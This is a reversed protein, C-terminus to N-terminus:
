VGRARLNYRNSMSQDMDGNSISEKVAGIIIKRIQNGSSDSSQETQVDENTYNQIIIYVASGAQPAGFASIGLNGDSGRKLPMVAEPGAEGMLGPAFGSGSAFRFYTPADIIRNTFFGGAAFAAAKGYQNYIGGKANKESDETDASTAGDVYGSILASSAAAAVFGLGLAWQGNAILQLGAQLFMMPLQKLIQQAMAALAREMSKAADEGEGLARGFEEFGNLTSSVCLETFQAQLGGLIVAAESSFTDLNMLGQTLSDELTARWDIIAAKAEEFQTKATNNKHDEEVTSRMVAFRARIAAIEEESNGAALIRQAELENIYKLSEQFEYELDDIRTASLDRMLREEEAQLKKGMQTRKADYYANVQDITEKNAARVYNKYADALKKGRELEIGAFPDGAQEAKFQGWVDAWAEKWNRALENPDPGKPRRNGLEGQAAALDKRARELQIREGELASAFEDARNKQGKALAKNKANELVDIQKQIENIDKKLLVVDSRLTEDSLGRLVGAYASAAATLFDFVQAQEMQQFSLNETERAAQQVKSSYLTYGAALGAVALTSALVVPNLAGISFNLSMQAAFALAAKVAMAALYGTLAVIAAALGAKLLPSDNIANAIASLVEVVKIAAPLFMEGFSAALSNVSEKLGEQMAALSRSGLEMGGFYRGGEATLDDLAASFDEFGIEGASTMEVIEATTVNFRKALADLIPVGQNLYANLIEMDAKGKAAAKSFANIYGTFKQSNGQSLDGFKTLQSELDALPTKAALLVNVAQTLDGLSFPTKDNFAKIRNFLGAGAEMDGLLIGFENRATQFTDATSLAFTGMDKVVSLVKALAATEALRGLANTLDGFSEINKGNAADLNDAERGLRKYEDVLKELEGSQPDFGRAVLEVASNKLQSQVNRLEASSAGFLKMSAAARAASDQTQQFTKSIATGGSESFKVTTAALTQMETKLSSVLALAESAAIKIQLELTKKDNAM